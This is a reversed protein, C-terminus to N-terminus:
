ARALFGGDVRLNEGTVYSSASSALFLVTSAMEEVTGYRGLPTHGLAWSEVEPKSLWDANLETAVFSPSVANVRVKPAFVSALGRTMALMGAKTAEYPVQPSATVDAAITSINIISGGDGAIMHKAVEQSIFFPARLNVAFLAEWDEPTVDPPFTQGIVAANNVLIDIRKGWGFAEDVLGALKDLEAIDQAIPHFERGKGRVADGLAELRDLSLDVGIVDAGADAFTEAIARGIGRGAGVVLAKQGSLDTGNM